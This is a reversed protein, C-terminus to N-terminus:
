LSKLTNGTGSINIKLIFDNASLIGDTFGNFTLTMCALKKYNAPITYSPPLSLDNYGVFVFQM